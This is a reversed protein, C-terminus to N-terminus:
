LFYCSCFLLSSLFPSSNLIFCHNHLLFHFSLFLLVDTICRFHLPLIFFFYFFLCMSSIDFFWFSFLYSSISIFLLLIISIVVIPLCFFHLLLLSLPLFTLFSHSLSSFLHSNPRSSVLLYCMYFRLLEKVEMIKGRVLSVICLHLPFTHSQSPLTTLRGTFLFSPFLSVGNQRHNSKKALYTKWKKKKALM